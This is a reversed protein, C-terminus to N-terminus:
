PIARSWRELHGTEFSDDFLSMVVGIDDFYFIGVSGSLPGISVRASRADVPAHASAGFDFWETDPELVQLYPGSM